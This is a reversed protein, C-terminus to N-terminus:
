KLETSKLQPIETQKQKVIGDPQRGERGSAADGTNIMTETLEKSM